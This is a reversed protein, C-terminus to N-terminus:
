GRRCVTRVRIAGYDNGNNPQLFGTWVVNSTRLAIFQGPRIPGDFLTEQNNYTSLRLRTVAPKLSTIKLGIFQGGLTPCSFGSISTTLGEPGSGAMQQQDYPEEVIQQAQASSVAFCGIAAAAGCLGLRGRPHSIMKIM